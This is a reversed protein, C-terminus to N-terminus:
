ARAIPIEDLRTTFRPSRREQKATSGSHTGHRAASAVAVVGRGFRRNLADLATMQVADILIAPDRYPRGNSLAGRM